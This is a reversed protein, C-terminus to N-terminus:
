ADGFLVAIQQRSVSTLSAMKASSTARIRTSAAIASLAIPTGRRHGPLHGMPLQAMPRHGRTSGRPLWRAASSPASAWASSALAGDADGGAAGAGSAEAPSALSLMGLGILAATTTAKLSTQMM